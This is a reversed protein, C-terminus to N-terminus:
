GESAQSDPKSEEGQEDDEDKPNVLIGYKYLQDLLDQGMVAGNDVLFQARERIKYGLSTAKNGNESTDDGNEILDVFVPLNKSIYARASNIQSAITNADAPPTTGDSQEDTNDTKTESPKASDYERMVDKYKYWEEKLIKLYEYRDCAKDLSKCTEFATKIKKWREANDIWMKKVSEPLLDHDERKGRSTFKGESEDPVNDEPIPNESSSTNVDVANTIVPTIDKDMNRVGQLTLGDLRYKLHKGLEYEIKDVFRTPRNLLQQYLAMNRTIQYVMQAGEILKEESSHDDTLWKEIKATFDKDLKEM